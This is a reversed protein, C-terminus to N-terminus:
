AHVKTDNTRSMANTVHFDHDRQVAPQVCREVDGGRLEASWVSLHVPSKRDSVVVSHESQHDERETGLGRKM